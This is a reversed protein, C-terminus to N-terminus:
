RARRRRWVMGWAVRLEDVRLVRAALLYVAAGAAGGALLQVAAEPAAARSVVAMVVASAAAALTVRGATSILARGEIRGLRRRLLVLLTVLNVAAVISTALAIGTAGWIRLLLYDLVANLGVMWVGVRVPTAMDHLAYYARTVIYFAAIAPLGLAYAGVAASTAQTAAGTFLGREFLLAILPERLAVAFAAVPLIIAALIRLALGATARLEAPEDVAAQAALLPFIATAISVAFIGAPAQVVEYAYDLVAVANTAATGTVYSAFFRDVYANIEVIALGLMAPVALRGVEAVAPHRLDPRGFRLGLRRAAPLQVLFQAATGFIWSVALGTIGYRVGLVLTGAIIVLNFVLPALAPVTFHEHAQLFGTVYVSLALFLMAVFIIRTLHVALATLGPSAAFGPAALPVLLPALLQGLAVMALGLLLVLTFLNASAARAEAREGRALYRSITPIFVISLTGGLLLRQVFFPVYYAIVYAAKANTAGFLAAAVIERILGLLRSAVTAAAMVTAARALGARLRPAEKDRAPPQALIAEPKADKM